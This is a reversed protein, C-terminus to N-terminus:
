RTLDIQDIEPDDALNSGCDDNGSFVGADRASKGNTNGYSSLIASGAVFDGETFKFKEIFFGPGVNLAEGGDFVSFEETAESAEAGNL